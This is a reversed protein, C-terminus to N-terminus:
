QKNLTISIGTVSAGQSQISVAQRNGQTRVSLNASFTDGRAAAQVENASARGSVTGSANYTSESWSGSLAGRRNEFEGTLNFNYSESACRLNLRVNDGSGDVQYAARCRLREEQGGSTTMTGSGSWSGAMATFPGAVAQGDHQSALLSGLALVAVAAFKPNLFM